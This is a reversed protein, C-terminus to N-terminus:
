SSLYQSSSIELASDSGSCCSASAPGEANFELFGSSSESSALEFRVEWACLGEVGGVFSSFVCIDILLKSSKANRMPGRRSLVLIFLFSPVTRVGFSSVVLGLGNCSVVFGDRSGIM